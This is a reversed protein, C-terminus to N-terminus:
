SGCLTGLGPTFRCTLGAECRQLAAVGNGCCPQGLAGCPLCSGPRPFVNGQCDLGESCTGGGGTGCCPQNMGGCIECSASSGCYARTATCSTGGCCPQTTAGCAAGEANVCSGARCTGAFGSLGDGCSQGSAHCRGIVCCGGEECLNADCCEQGPLGCGEAPPDADVTPADPIGADPTAADAPRRSGVVCGAIWSRLRSIDDTTPRQSREPPPMERAAVRQYLRSGDPDGPVV